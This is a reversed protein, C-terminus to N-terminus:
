RLAAQDPQKRARLRGVDASQAITPSDGLLEYYRAALALDQLASGVSKFVVLGDSPISAAGTVIQGLTARKSEPLAKVKVAEILEGAEELAHLTDVAVLSARRFCEIDTECFQKRTNGVACLLRCEDLWEGRLIPEASRAGSASAVVQKGRVASRIDSVATVEVGLSTSMERAFAARNAATPSFVDVRGLRYVTALCELQTRAQNGSGIVGVSVPGDLPVRRAIVGSCAGTRLDTILQGDLLALLAGDKLSYLSVVYRTGAGKVSHYAKMAAYGSQADTAFLIRMAGTPFETVYKPSVVTAGASEHAFARELLDIADSMRLTGHLMEYGLMVAM